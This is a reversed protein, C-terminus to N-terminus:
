FLIVLWQRALAMVGGVSSLGGMRFSAPASDGGCQRPKRFGSVELGRLSTGSREVLHQELYKLVM